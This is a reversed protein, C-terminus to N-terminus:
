RLHMGRTNGAPAEGSGASAAGSAFYGKPCSCLPCREPAETGIAKCGCNKCCHVVEEPAPLFGSSEAEDIYERLAEAHSAEVEAVMRMKDAIESFNEAEAKDAFDRYLVGGDYEEAALARRANEVSGGLEDLYELWLGAHERENRAMEAFRLSLAYDGNKGAIDALLAYKTQSRAEAEFAKQLNEETKTGAIGSRARNKM